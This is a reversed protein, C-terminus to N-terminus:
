CLLELAESSHGGLLNTLSKLIQYLMTLIQFFDLM